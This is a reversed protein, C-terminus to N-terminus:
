EANLSVTNLTVELGTETLMEMSFIAYLSSAITLTEASTSPFYM